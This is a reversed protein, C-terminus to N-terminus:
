ADRTRLILWGGVLAAVPWALLSVIATGIDESGPTTLVQAASMPLYKGLDVVWQWAEGGMVFMNTVIPLVFLVGVTAAIAGAGNRVIFGFGLGLLGFSAM